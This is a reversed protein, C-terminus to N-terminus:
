NRKNFGDNSNIFISIWGACIMARYNHFKLHMTNIGLSAHIFWTREVILPIWNCNHSIFQGLFNSDPIKKDCKQTGLDSRTSLSTKKWQRWTLNEVFPCGMIPNGPGLVLLCVAVLCISVLSFPKLGQAGISAKQSLSLFNLLNM